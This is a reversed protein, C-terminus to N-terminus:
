LLFQPPTHSTRVLNDYELKERGPGATYAKFADHINGVSTYPTSCPLLTDIFKDATDGYKCIRGSLESAWADKVVASSQKVDVTCRVVHQSKVFRTTSKAAMGSYYASSNCYSCTSISM